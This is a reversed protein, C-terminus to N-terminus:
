EGEHWSISLFVPTAGDGGTADVTLGHDFGAELAWLSMTQPNQRFIEKPYTVFQGNRTPVADLVRIGGSGVHSVALFGIVGPKGTLIYTGKREIMYGKYGFPPTPVSVLFVPLGDPRQGVQTTYFDQASRM